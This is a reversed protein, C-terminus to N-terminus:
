KKVSTDAAGQRTSEPNERPAADVRRVSLRVKVKLLIRINVNLFHPTYVLSAQFSGLLLGRVMTRSEERITREM